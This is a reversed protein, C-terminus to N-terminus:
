KLVRLDISLISPHDQDRYSIDMQGFAHHRKGSFEEASTDMQISEHVVGNTDTFTRFTSPDPISKTWRYNRADGQMDKEIFASTANRHGFYDTHGNPVFSLVTAYDHANIASNLRLIVSGQASTAVPSSQSRPEGVSPQANNNSIPSATARPTQLSAVASPTVAVEDNKLTPKDEGWNAVSWTLVAEAAKSM